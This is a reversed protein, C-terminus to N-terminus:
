AAEEGHLGLEAGHFLEDLGLDGLGDGGEVVEGDAVLGVQVRVVDLNCFLVRVPGDALRM